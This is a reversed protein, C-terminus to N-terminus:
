RHYIIKKRIFNIKQGRGNISKERLVYIIDIERRLANKRWSAWATFHSARKEEGKYM